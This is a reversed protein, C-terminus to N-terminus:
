ASCSCTATTRRSRALGEPDPARVRGRARPLGVRRRVPPARHARLRRARLERKRIWQCYNEVKARGDDSAISHKHLDLIMGPRFVPVALARRTPASSSGCPCASRSRTPACGVVNTLLRPGEDLEVYALVYPVRTASRRCRTRARTVTFTYVTGRGAPRSTSSRAALAAHRLARAAPAAGTRLARCRQLVARRPGRGGLLRADGLRRGAHRRAESRDRRAPM